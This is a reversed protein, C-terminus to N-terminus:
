GHHTTGQWIQICILVAFVFLQVINFKKVSCVSSEDEVSQGELLKIKNHSNSSLFRASLLFLQNEVHLMHNLKKFIGDKLQKCLNEKTLLPLM